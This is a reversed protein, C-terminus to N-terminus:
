RVRRRPSSSSRSAKVGGRDPAAAPEAALMELAVAVQPYETLVDPDATRDRWLLVRPGRRHLSIRRHYEIVRPGHTVLVGYEMGDGDEMFAALMAVSPSVRRRRLIRRLDDLRPEDRLSATLESVEQRYLRRMYPTM